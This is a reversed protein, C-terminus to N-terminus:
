DLKVQTIKGENSMQHLIVEIEQRKKFTTKLPNILQLSPYFTGNYILCVKKPELFYAKLKTVDQKPNEVQNNFYVIEPLGLKVWGFMQNAYNLVRTQPYNERRTEDKVKLKIIRKRSEESLFPLIVQFLYTKGKGLRVYAGENEPNVIKTKIDELNKILKTAIESTSKELLGIEFEIYNNMLSSIIKFFEILDDNNIFSLYRNSVANMVKINTKIKVGENICERLNDLGGTDIGFLHIRKSVEIIISNNEVTESDEIIINEFVHDLERKEIRLVKSKIEGLDNDKELIIEEIEKKLMDDKSILYAFVLSRLAGKLSSGPIYKEGNTEIALELLNNSEPNFGFANLRVVKSYVIKDTIEENKFYEWINTNEKKELILKIYRKRLENDSEFLKNLQYQDIISINDSTAIYEGVSTIKHDNGIHLPSLTQIIIQHITNM